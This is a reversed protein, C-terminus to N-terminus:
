EDNDNTKIDETEFMLLCKKCLHTVETLSEDTYLEYLISVTDDDCCRCSYKETRLEITDMKNEFTPDILLMEKRLFSSGASM